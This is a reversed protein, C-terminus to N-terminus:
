PIIKLDILLQQLQSTSEEIEQATELRSSDFRLASKEYHHARQRLMESAIRAMDLEDRAAALLPRKDKGEMMREALRDIRSQLYITTGHTNMLEMAGDACPTGGGCAVITDSMGCARELAQREILRFGNEGKTAFIEPITMAAMEEVLSDIDVFALSCARALSQGLTSKGSCMLGVLFIPRM